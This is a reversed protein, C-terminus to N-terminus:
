SGTTQEVICIVLGCAFTIGLGKVRLRPDQRMQIDFGVWFCLEPRISMAWTQIMQIFQVYAQSVTYRVVRGCM